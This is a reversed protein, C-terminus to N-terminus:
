TKPIGINRVYAAALSEIRRIVEPVAEAVPASLTEICDFCQGTVTIIAAAPCNGYLQNAAHLLTEPTLHHLFMLGSEAGAPALERQQIDGGAGEVSADVFIVYDAQSIPEAMEPYLQHASIIDVGAIARKELAAAVHNGLGDDGRLANGYGIVLVPNM